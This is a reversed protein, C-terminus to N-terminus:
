SQGRHDAPGLRLHHDVPLEDRDGEFTEQEDRGAPEVPQGLQDALPDHVRNSVSAAV